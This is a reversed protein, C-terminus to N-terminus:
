KGEEPLANERLRERPGLATWSGITAVHESPYPIDPLDDARWDNDGVRTWVVGNDWLIRSGKRRPLNQVQELAWSAEAFKERVRKLEYQNRM